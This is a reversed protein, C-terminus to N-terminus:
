GGFLQTWHNGQAAYGVGLHRYGCNLINARHGSSNMWGSMVAEASGYGAAINEGIGSSGYGAARARDWPQSGDLGTHSFYGQAAMDLSHATAAATLSGDLSLAACGAAAREENVLTLIQQHLQADGNGAPATATPKPTTAPKITTPKATTSPATTTPATTTPAATTPAVTATPDPASPEPLSLAPAPASFPEAGGSTSTSRDPPPDARGPESIATTDVSGDDGLSGLSLGAVLGTAWLAVVAALLRPWRRRGAASAVTDPEVPREARLQGDAMPARVDETITM